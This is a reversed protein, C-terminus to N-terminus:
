LDLYFRRAQLYNEVATIECTGLAAKIKDDVRGYTKEIRQLKRTLGRQYDPPLRYARKCHLWLYADWVSLM